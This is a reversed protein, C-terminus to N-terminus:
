LPCGAICLSFAIPRQLRALAQPTTSAKGTFVSRTSVPSEATLHVRTQGNTYPYGGRSDRWACCRPAHWWVAPTLDAFVALTM